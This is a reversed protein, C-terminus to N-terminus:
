EALGTQDESTIVSESVLSLGSAPLVSVHAGTVWPGVGSVPM